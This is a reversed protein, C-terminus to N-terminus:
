MRKKKRMVVFSVLPLPASRFQRGTCRRTLWERKAENSRSVKAVLFAKTTCSAGFVINCKHQICFPVQMNSMNRDFRGFKGAAKAKHWRAPLVCYQVNNTVSVPFAPWKPLPPPRDRQCAPSICGSRTVNFPSTRRPSQNRM